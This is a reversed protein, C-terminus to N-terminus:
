FGYGMGVTLGLVNGGEGFTEAKLLRGDIRARLRPGLDVRAGLAVALAANFRDDPRCVVDPSEEGVAFCRATSQLALHAGVGVGVYPRVPGLPAELQLQVDPLLLSSAQPSAQGLPAYLVGAEAVVFPLLRVEVRAGVSAARTQVADHEAPGGTVWVTQALAAPATALVALVLALRLM